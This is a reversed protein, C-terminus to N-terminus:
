VVGEEENDCEDTNEAAWFRTSMKTFNEVHGKFPRSSLPKTLINAALDDTEVHVLYVLGDEAGM